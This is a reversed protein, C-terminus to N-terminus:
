IPPALHPPPCCLQCSLSVSSVSLGAEESPSSVATYIPENILAGQFRPWWSSHTAFDISFSGLARKAKPDDFQPKFGRDSPNARLM